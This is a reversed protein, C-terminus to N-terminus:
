NKLAQEKNGGEWILGESMSVKLADMLDNNRIVHLILTQM